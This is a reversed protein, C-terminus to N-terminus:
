HLMEFLYAFFFGVNADNSGFHPTGMFAVGCTNDSINKTAEDNSTHSKLLADKTVIGGLSHAVFIIPRDAPVDKRENRLQACLYEAHQGLRALSVCKFPRVVDSDYGWTM